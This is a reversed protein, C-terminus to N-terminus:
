NSTMLITSLSRRDGPRIHEINVLIITMVLVICRNTVCMMLCEFYCYLVKDEEM